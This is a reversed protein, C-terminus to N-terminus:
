GEKTAASLLGTMGLGAVIAQRSSIPSTLALVVLAGLVSSVLMDFFIVIPKATPGLDINLVRFFSFPQHNHLRNLAYLMFAGLFAWFILDPKDILFQLGWSVSSPDDNLRTDSQEQQAHASLTFVISSLVMVLTCGMRKWGMPIRRMASQQVEVTKGKYTVVSIRSLVPPHPVSRLETIIQETIGDCFFEYKPDDSMNVFPLM